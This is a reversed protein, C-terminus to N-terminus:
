RMCESISKHPLQLTEIHVWMHVWMELDFNEENAQDEQEYEESNCSVVRVDHSLTDLSHLQCRIYLVSKERRIFMSRPLSKVDTQLLCVHKFQMKPPHAAATLLHNIEYSLWHRSQYLWYSITLWYLVPGLSITLDHVVLQGNYEDYQKKGSKAWAVEQVRIYSCYLSGKIHHLLLTCMVCCTSLNVSMCAIPLFSNQFKKTRAPPLEFTKAHRMRDTVQM